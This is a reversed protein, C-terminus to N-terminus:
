QLSTCFLLFELGIPTLRLNEECDIKPCTRVCPKGHLEGDRRRDQSGFEPKGERESNHYTLCREQKFIEVFTKLTVMGLMGLM